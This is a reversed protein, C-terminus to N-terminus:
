SATLGDITSVVVGSPPRTRYDDEYLKAEVVGEAGLIVIIPHPIGYVRSGPEMDENLVGFARIVESGPDSLLTYDISSKDAFAALKEPTDYSLAALGYGRDELDAQVSSLDALQKKCFPCWDASRVFVLVLGNEGKLDAFDRATGTADTAAVAPATSGIAPGLEATEAEAATEHHGAVAPGGMAFAAIAAIAYKM